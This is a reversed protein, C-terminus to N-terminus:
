TSGVSELMALEGAQREILDAWRHLIRARRRPEASAWNSAQFAMRASTVARDVASEDADPIAGYVVGDSPRRVDIAKPAEVVRGDMFHGSRIAVTDPDFDWSELM